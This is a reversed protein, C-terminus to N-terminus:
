KRCYNAPANAVIWDLLTTVRTNISPNGATACFTGYSIIGINFLLGTAPDTRLAPGGSDNQCSDKGLTYTCIQRPTLTAVNRQCASQSIVDVDVKRLVTSLEGGIQTTGWGLLTAKTGSLDTNVFKFPLCVPGVADSFTMQGNIALIAIDYDYNSQTFQPHITITKVLFGQTATTETGTSTNHEGVIVGIDNPSKNVVCHAATVLYSPSIITAGCKIVAGSSRDVVGAMMPYENVGTEQGNVIRNTKKYGCSCTSNNAAAQATVTCIFRGGPSSQSTILGITLRQGTSVATVSGSGCYYDANTLQSDGNKSILVRDLLCSSSSPLSITCDAKCNFGVPCDFIWRCQVGGVYNYPYNPSYAYFTQSTTTITQQFNCNADQCHAYAFLLFSFLTNVLFM